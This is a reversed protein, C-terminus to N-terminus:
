IVNRNMDTSANTHIFKYSNISGCHWQKETLKTDIQGIRRSWHLAAVICPTTWIDLGSGNKCINQCWVCFIQISSCRQWIDAQTKKIRVITYSFSKEDYEKAFMEFLQFNCFCSEGFQINSVVQRPYIRHTGWSKEMTPLFYTWPPLFWRASPCFTELLKQSFLILLFVNGFQIDSVVQRPYMWSKGHSKINWTPPPNPPLSPSIGWSAFGSTSPVLIDLTCLFHVTIFSTRQLTWFLLVNPPQLWWLLINPLNTYCLIRRYMINQSRVFSRVIRDWKIAQNSYMTLLIFYSVGALVNIM